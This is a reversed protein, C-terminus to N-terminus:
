ATWDGSFSEPAPVRLEVAGSPPWRELIHGQGEVELALRLVEGAKLSLAALPVGVEFVRGAAARVGTLDEGPRAPAIIGDEGLGLTVVYQAEEGFGLHLRCDKLCDAARGITDIRIWVNAPDFGVRIERVIPRSLHMASALASTRLLAAARWEFYDTVEGDVVPEVPGATEHVWLGAPVSIPDDVEEPATAGLAEYAARVNSRFLEDFVPEDPSSHQESYWWFWDSGEAVALHDRARDRAESPGARQVAELAGRLLAWARRHQPGGIWTGYSADIWSGPFVHPLSATPPFERVYDSVSTTELVPDAEIGTYLARLFAEGGDPYSGWPNEGDLIISVLGPQPSDGIDSAIRRLRGVFDAAAEQPRWHRYVFGIRDSLAHDRFLLSPGAEGLRYARYRVAPALRAASAENLSRALVEDDSATWGFGAESVLALSADSIAGEPSWLGHPAQGFQAEHHARGHRLQERAEEPVQWLTDPLNGRPIAREADSMNCLLPLIPHAFPSTMLEARQEAEAGHYLGILTGAATQLAALLSRKEEETFDRGKAWLGRVLESEAQLAYGCWALNLWVQIDRYEPVTFAGCPQDLSGASADLARRHWLRACHPSTQLAKLPIIRAFYGLLDCQDRLDLDGAPRKTLELLPDTVEGRAHLAIQETLSPVLNFHVVTNAFSRVLWPMDTYSGIAHLRVYPLGAIRSGPRLYWPQHMHWIFAVKLPAV